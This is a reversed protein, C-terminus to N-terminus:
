VSYKFTINDNLHVGLYSFNEVIPIGQIHSDKVQRTRKDLRVALIASKNKNLEM